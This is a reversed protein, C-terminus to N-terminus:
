FDMTHDELSHEGQVLLLLHVAPLDMINHGLRIKTLHETVTLGLLRLSCAPLHKFKSKIFVSPFLISYAIVNVSSLSVSSFWPILYM